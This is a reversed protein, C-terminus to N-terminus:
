KYLYVNYKNESLYVKNIKEPFKYENIKIENNEEFFNNNTENCHTIALSVFNNKIQMSDDIIRKFLEDLKIKGYRLSGQYENTFNTEDVMDCNIEEKKCETYFKGNGHRTLYTRTVYCTELDYEDKKFYNEIIIKVNKIGTNATTLNPAYELNNQDLLLGQSGEFVFNKYNNYIKSQEIINIKELMFIFDSIYNNKINENDFLMFKRNKNIEPYKKLLNNKYYNICEDLLINLMKINNKYFWIDHLVNKLVKTRNVTADIGVGCSGHRDKGRMDELIQNYLMDYPTTFVCNIDAFINVGVIDKKISNYERLFLMPNLIFEDSFFLDCNKNFIGSGFHSCVYRNGNEFEVTHGANAGGSFRINLVKENNPFNSVFYNTLLGKGEDGFNAGIVIKIRKKM